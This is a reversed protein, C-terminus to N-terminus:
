AAGDLCRACAPTGGLAISIAPEPTKHKTATCSLPEGRLYSLLLPAARDVLELVGPILRGGSTSVILTERDTSLGVQAGDRALAALMAAPGAPPAIAHDGGRMVATNRTFLHALADIPRHARPPKPQRVSVVTAAAYSGPAMVDFQRFRRGTEDDIPVIIGDPLIDREEDLLKPREVLEFGRHSFWKRGRFDRGLPALASAPTVMPTTWVPREWAKTSRSLISSIVNMTSNTRETLRHERALRRDAREEMRRHVDAM